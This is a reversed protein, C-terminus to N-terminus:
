LRCNTETGGRDFYAWRQSYGFYSMTRTFFRWCFPICVATYIGSAVLLCWWNLLYRKELREQFPDFAVEAVKLNRESPIEHIFVYLLWSRSSRTEKSTTQYQEHGVRGIRCKSSCSIWRFERTMFFVNIWHSEGLSCRQFQFSTKSMSPIQCM